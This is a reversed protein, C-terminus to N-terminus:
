RHHPQGRLNEVAYMPAAIMKSEAGSELETYEHGFIALVRSMSVTVNKSRQHKAILLRLNANRLLLM